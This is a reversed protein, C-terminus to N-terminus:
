AGAELSYRLYFNFVWGRRWYPRTERGRGRGVWSFEIKIFYKFFYM